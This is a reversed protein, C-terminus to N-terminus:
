RAPSRQVYSQTRLAALERTQALGPMQELIWQQKHLVRPSPQRASRKLPSPLIAALLAAQEASLQKAECDFHYRAAAGVGFVGPGFEAINLYLELIRSKPWMFEILVTWYAELAKRVFSRGEWLFMNKAVQQSLTSAGRLPEGDLHDAVAHTIETVDFGRHQFFRQDESSLVAVSVYSPLKALPVWHQKLVFGRQGQLWAALQRQLMLSSSPPDVFRLVFAASVTVGLWAAVAVLAWRGVRRASLKGLKKRRKRM